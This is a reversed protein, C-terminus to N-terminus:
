VTYPFEAWHIYFSDRLMFVPLLSDPVPFAPYLFYKKPMRFFATTDIVTMKPIM